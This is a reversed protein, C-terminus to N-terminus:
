KLDYRVNNIQWREFPTIRFAGHMLIIHYTASSPWRFHVTNVMGAVASFRAFSSAGCEVRAIWGYFPPFELPTPRAPHISLPLHVRFPPFPIPCPPSVSSPSRYRRHHYFPVPLSSLTVLVTVLNRRLARPCRSLSSPTKTTEATISHLPTQVPFLSRANLPNPDVVPPPPARKEVNM